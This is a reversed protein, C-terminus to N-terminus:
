LSVGGDVVLELGTVYSSEDSALFLAANAIDWPSAQRSMPCRADRQTRGAAAAVANPFLRAAHPTDVLGAVIANCRVQRAAYQRAIVRTMHNLAAKSTSYSLFQTPSWKLSAISSTFIISGGGQEIMLPMAARASRMAGTLNIAYVRDWEEEDLELLDGLAEVGVNYHLVDLRGHREVCARVIAKIENAEAVDAVVISAVGGNAVIRRASEDAAQASRDACVVLAGERALTIASAAGNSTANIPTGRASSSRWRASSGAANM